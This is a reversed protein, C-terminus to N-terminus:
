PIEMLSFAIGSILPITGFHEAFVEISYHTRAPLMLSQSISNMGM